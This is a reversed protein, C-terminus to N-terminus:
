TLRERAGLGRPLRKPPGDLGAARAEDLLRHAHTRSYHLEDTIAKIHHDGKAHAASAIEAVRRLLDARDQRGARAKSRSNTKTEPAVLEERTDALAEEMDRIRLDPDRYVVLATGKRVADEVPSRLKDSDLGTDCRVGVCTPWGDLVKVDLEYLLPGDDHVLSKIEADALSEPTLGRSAAQDVPCIASGDRVYWPQPGAGAFVKVTFARPIFRKGWRVAFGNPLGNPLLPEDHPVARAEIRFGQPWKSKAGM